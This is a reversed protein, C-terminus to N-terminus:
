ISQLEKHKKALFRIAKEKAATIKEFDEADLSSQSIGLKTEGITRIADLIAVLVFTDQETKLAEQYAEFANKLLKTSKNRSYMQMYSSASWARCYANSDYLLHDKLITTDELTGLWGLVIIARDRKYTDESKTFDRAFSLTKDKHMGRIIGLMFIIEAQFDSEQNTELRNLLLDEGKQKHEDFRNQLSQRFSKDLDNDLLLEYHYEVFDSKMISWVFENKNNRKETKIDDIWQKYEELTYFGIDHLIENIDERLAEDKLNQLKHKLFYHVKEKNQRFGFFLKLDSQVYRKKQELFSFHLELYDDDDSQTLESCFQTTNIPSKNKLTNIQDFLTKLDSVSKM